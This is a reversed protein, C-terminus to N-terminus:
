DNVVRKFVAIPDGPTNIILGVTTALVPPIALYFSWWYLKGFRAVASPPERRAPRFEFRYVPEFIIGPHAGRMM